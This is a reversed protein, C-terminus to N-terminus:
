CNSINFIRHKGEKKNKGMDICLYNFRESWAKQCMENFEDYKMDYAGVDYYMSQIDTM